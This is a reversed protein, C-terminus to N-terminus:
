KEYRKAIADIRFIFSVKVSAPTDVHVYGAAAFINTYLIYVPLIFHDIAIILNIQQYLKDM